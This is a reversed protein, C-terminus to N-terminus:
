TRNSSLGFMEVDLVYATALQEKGFLLKGSYCITFPIKVDLVGVVQLNRGVSQFGARKM